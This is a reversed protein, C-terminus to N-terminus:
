PCTNRALASWLKMSDGKYNLYKNACCEAKLCKMLCGTCCGQTGAVADIGGRTLPSLHVPLRQVQLRHLAIGLNGLANDKVPMMGHGQNGFATIRVKQQGKEAYMPQFVETDGFWVQNGGGEGLMYEPYQGKSDM